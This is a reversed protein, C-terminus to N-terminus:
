GIASDTTCEVLVVIVLVDVVTEVVLVMVEVVEDVVMEVVLVMVEEVLVVVETVEVEEVLVEKGYAQLARKVNWILPQVFAFFVQHQWCSRTPHWAVLRAEVVDVGVSVLVSVVVVSSMVEVDVPTAFSVVRSLQWLVQLM